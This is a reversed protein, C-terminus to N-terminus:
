VSSPEYRQLETALALTAPDPHAVALRRTLGAADVLDVACWDAIEPVALWAVNSLTEEHDISSMLTDTARSLFRERVQATREATVDEIIMVTAAPSAPTTACCRRKLLNWNVAGTQRHVTRILLPEADAGGLLRVSPIDDMTLLRGHEDL